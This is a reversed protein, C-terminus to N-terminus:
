FLHAPIRRRLARARAPKLSRLQWPDRRLDYYERHTVRGSGRPHPAGPAFVVDYYEVYQHTRTVISVWSPPLGPIGGPHWHQLLLHARTWPRLLSRGASGPLPPLGAADLVTPAIDARAALRSDVGRRVGGAPWSLHLPVRVSQQYPVHKGIWGHEAWCYGNDGVFIVLTNELQGTRVLAAHVAAVLDDVSRLSRLQRRREARGQALTAHRRRLYPPKDKRNKEGVAPDGNWRPVALRAYRPEPTNPAHPAYPAVYLYWPRDDAQSVFAVARERVATTSYGPCPRVTGNDNWRGDRYSPKCFVAYDDFHRVSDGPSWGNLMKGFLGTRYGADHLRRQVTADQDFRHEYGHNHRVGHQHAHRGTMITARSPACVPTLCRAETFTRGGGGLWRETRPLAWGTRLPQDDTVILLM